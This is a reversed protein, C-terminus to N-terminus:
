QVRRLGYIFDDLHTSADPPLGFDFRLSDLLDELEQGHLQRSADVELPPEPGSTIYERIARQVVELPTLGQRSACDEIADSEEAALPVILEVTAEDM